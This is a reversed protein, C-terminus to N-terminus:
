GAPSHPMSPIDTTARERDKLVSTVVLRLHDAHFPKMLWGGSQFGDEEAPPAGSCFIVSAGIEDPIQRALELGDHGGQIGVDLVLLDPRHDMVARLADEYDACVARVEHGMELLEDAIMRAILADDEVVVVRAPMSM